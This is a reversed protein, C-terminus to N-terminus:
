PNLPPIRLISLGIAADTLVGPGTIATVVILSGIGEPFGADAVGSVILGANTPSFCAIIVESSNFSHDLTVNWSGIGNRIVSQVKYKKVITGNALFLVSADFSSFSQNLMGQSGGPDYQTVDGGPTISKNAM